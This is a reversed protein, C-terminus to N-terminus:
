HSVDSVFYRSRSRNRLSMASRNEREVQFDFHCARRAPLDVAAGFFFVVRDQSALHKMKRFPLSEAYVNPTIAFVQGDIYLISDGQGTLSFHYLGTVNPLFTGEYVCSFVQPWSLWLADPYTAATINSAFGTQNIHGSYDATTHYTVNLGGESFLSPPAAAFQGAGLYAKFHTYTINKQQGRGKLADFPSQVVITSDIVFGGHNESVQSQNSRDVGFVAVKKYNSALIPFVAEYNKLLVPGEETM